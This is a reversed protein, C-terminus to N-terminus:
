TPNVTFQPQNTQHIVEINIALFTEDYKGSEMYDKYM